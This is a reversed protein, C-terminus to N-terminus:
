KKLTEAVNSKIADNGKQYLEITSKIEAKSNKLISVVLTSTPVGKLKALTNLLNHLEEELNLGMRKRVM